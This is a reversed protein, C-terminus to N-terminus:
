IKRTGPKLSRAQGLEKSTKDIEGEKLLNRIEKQM